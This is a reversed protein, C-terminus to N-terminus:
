QREPELAYPERWATKTESDIFLRYPKGDADYEWRTAKEVNVEILMEKDLHSYTDYSNKYSKRYEEMLAPNDRSRGLIAATGDIQINEFSVAVNKNAEIQRYKELDTGTQFYLKGGTVIFSMTRVTPKGGDCTALAGIFKVGLRDFTKKLEDEFILKEMKIRKNLVLM